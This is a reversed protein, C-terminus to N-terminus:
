QGSNCPNLSLSSRSQDLELELQSNNSNAISWISSTESDDVRTVRFEGSSTESFSFCSVGDVFHSVKCSEVNSLTSCDRVREVRSFSCM